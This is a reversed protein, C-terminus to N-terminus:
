FQEFEQPVPIELMSRCCYCLVSVSGSVRGNKLTMANLALSAGSNITYFRGQLNADCTANGGHITVDGSSISIQSDYNCNFNAAFTLTITSPSSGITAKLETWSAVSTTLRRRHLSSSTAAALLNPSRTAEFASMSDTRSHESMNSSFAFLAEPAAAAAAAAPLSLALVVMSLQAALSSPLISSSLVSSSCAIAAIVAPVLAAWRSPQTDHPLNSSSVAPEGALSENQTILDCTLTAQQSCMKTASSHRRMASVMKRQQRRGFTPYDRDGVKKKKKKAVAMKAKVQAAGKDAHQSGIGLDKNSPRAAIAMAATGAPPRLAAVLVITAAIVIAWACIPLGCLAMWAFCLQNSCSKVLYSRDPASSGASSGGQESSECRAATTNSHAYYTRSTVSLQNVPMRGRVVEAQINRAGFPVTTISAASSAALPIVPDRL